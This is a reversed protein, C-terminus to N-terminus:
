ALAILDRGEVLGLRTAEVRIRARAGPQGVAALHLAGAFRGVSELGVVPAGQIRQGLKDEDVEVFAAVAHGAAALARAFSKGVPGAGWLVAARGGTLPGKLLNAIKLDRFREPRYRPDTRTLRAAGDRWDLLTEPCKGFRLGAAHVRFWLDYDEPGNFDRYGGLWRLVTTRMMVSPHVLPAEVFLDRVIADHGLLENLWDVYARMGCAGDAEGLWRVRCGLVETREDAALRAAQLELRPPHAVDDADM